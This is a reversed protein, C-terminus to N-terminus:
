SAAEQCDLIEVNNVNTVEDLIQYATETMPTIPVQVGTMDYNITGDKRINEEQCDLIEVNNVNTVEDLIQYATETMPTIPVQVGTMDYNITGDKRINEIM